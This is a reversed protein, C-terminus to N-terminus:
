DPSVTLLVDDNFSGIVQLGVSVKSRKPTWIVPGLTIQGPLQLTM